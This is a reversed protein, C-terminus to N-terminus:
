CYSSSANWGCSEMASEISGVDILNIRQEFKEYADEGEENDIDERVFSSDILSPLGAKDALVAAERLLAAAEALKENIQSAYSKFEEDLDVDYYEEETSENEDDYDEDDM